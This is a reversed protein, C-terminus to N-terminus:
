AHYDHQHQLLFLMITIFFYHSVVSDVQFQINGLNENPATVARVPHQREGPVLPVAARGEWVGM